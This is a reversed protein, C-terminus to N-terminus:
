PATVRSAAPRHRWEPKPRLMIPNAEPLTLSKVMHATGTKCALFHPAGLHAEYAARDAHGEIM